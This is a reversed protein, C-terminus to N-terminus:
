LIKYLDSNIKEFWKATRIKAGVVGILVAVIVLGMNFIFGNQTKFYNLCTRVFEVYIYSIFVAKVINWKSDKYLVGCFFFYLYITIYGPYFLEIYQPLAELLDIIDKM